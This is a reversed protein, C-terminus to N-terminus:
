RDHPIESPVKALRKIASIANVRGDIEASSEATYVLDRFRRFAEHELIILQYFLPDLGCPSRLFWSQPHDKTVCIVHWLNNALDDLINLAPLDAALLINSKKTSVIMELGTVHPAENFFVWVDVEAKKKQLARQGSQGVGMLETKTRQGGRTRLDIFLTKTTM